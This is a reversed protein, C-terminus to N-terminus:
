NPLVIAKALIRKRPGRQLIWGPEIITATDGPFLPGQSQHEIGNFNVQENRQGFRSLGVNYMAMELQERAEANSVENWCFILHESVDRQFDQDSETQAVPPSVATETPSKTLHNCTPKNGTIFELIEEETLNTPRLKKSASTYLKRIDDLYYGLNLPKLCLSEGRLNGHAPWIHVEPDKKLELFVRDYFPKPSEFGLAALQKVLVAKWLPKDRIMSKAEKIYFRIENENWFRDRSWPSIRAGEVLSRLHEAIESKSAGLSNCRVLIESRSIPKASERVLTVLQANVM